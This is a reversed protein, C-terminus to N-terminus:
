LKTRRKNRTKTNKRKQTKQTKKLGVRHKKIQRRSKGGQTVPDLYTFFLKKKFLVEGDLSKENGDVKVKVFPKIVTKQQKNLKKAIWSQEEIVSRFEIIVDNGDTDKCMLQNQMRPNEPTVIKPPLDFAFFTSPEDKPKLFVGIPVYYKYINKNKDTSTKLSGTEYPSYRSQFGYALSENINNNNKTHEESTLKVTTLHRVETEEIQRDLKQKEIEAELIARQQLLQTDVEIKQLKLKAAAEVKAISVKTDTIGVATDKEIQRKLDENKQSEIDVRRKAANKSIEQVNQAVDAAINVVSVGTSGIAKLVGSATITANEAIEGTTASIVVVSKLGNKTLKGTADLGANGVVGVTETAKIGLKLSENTADAVLNAANKGIDKVKEGFETM